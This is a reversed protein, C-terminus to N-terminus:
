PIGPRLTLGGKAMLAAYRATKDAHLAPVDLGTAGIETLYRTIREKGGTTTLLERYADQSWHWGLGAAAFTENYAQRHLEETEALTGDVDFILARLTM